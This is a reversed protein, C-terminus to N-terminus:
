IALEITNTVGDGTAMHYSGGLQEVLMKVMTIGFRNPKNKLQEIGTGRGSDQIILKTINDEKTLSIYAHGNEGERYAYKFINTMLENIIIGLYMAKNSSINIDQISKEIKINKSEFLKAISSVID